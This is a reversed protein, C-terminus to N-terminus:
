ELDRLADEHHSVDAEIKDKFMALTKGLLELAKNADRPNFKEAEPGICRDVIERLRTAVWEATVHVQKNSEAVLEAIYSQVKEQKLLTHGYHRSYGAGEAADEAKLTSVYLQAFRRWKRDRTSDGRLQELYAEDDLLEDIEDENRALRFGGLYLSVSM